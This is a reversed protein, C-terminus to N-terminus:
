RRTNFLLLSLKCRCIKEVSPVFYQREFMRSATNSVLGLMELTDRRERIGIWLAKVYRDFKSGKRSWQLLKDDVPNPVSRSLEELDALMDNLFRAKAGIQLHTEPVAVLTYM